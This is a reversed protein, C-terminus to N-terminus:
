VILEEADFGSEKPLYPDVRWRRRNSGSRLAAPQWGSLSNRPLPREPARDLGYAERDNIATYECATRVHSTGDHIPEKVENTPQAPKRRNPSRSFTPAEPM